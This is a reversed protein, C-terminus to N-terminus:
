SNVDKAIAKRQVRLRKSEEIVEARSISKVYNDNYSYNLKTYDIKNKNKLLGM